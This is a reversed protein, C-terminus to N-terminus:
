SNQQSDLVSNLLKTYWLAMAVQIFNLFYMYTCILYGIIRLTSYCESGPFVLCFWKELLALNHEVVMLHIIGPRNKVKQELVATNKYHIDKM